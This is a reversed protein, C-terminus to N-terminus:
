KSDIMLIKGQLTKLEINLIGNRDVAAYKKNTLLDTVKNGIPNNLKLANLDLKEVITQDSFNLATIQYSSNKTLKHVMIIAGKNKVKPAAIQEALDIQYRKRIKLIHKLQSVFSNPDKLQKPISGYLFLAKPVNSISVSAKPNSGILDYAGRNIWRYDGDFILHKIKDLPLPLAGVLDWGSIIFVGPQMANFIVMLLHGCKIIEKQKDTLNYIDTIKLRAAVLGTFTTCLGNGSLRTYPIEPNIAINHMQEVIKDRLYKGNIIKNEYKFENDSHEIFHVLEYTIEDHNQMGHILSRPNINYEQMLKQMFRLFTADKTLIAHQLAPRTIFDYFLESGNESFSKIADLTLNLEQFSWGGLKRILCAINNTAITSCPHGESWAYSSNIVPEIALFPTADLRVIKNRLIHFNQVIDGSIIRQAAHSPDLWNMTPQGPKFYHLYIWRRVTGDVGSIEGTADWGTEKKSAGLVSFLVRQLRGPIYGCKQLKDIVDHDLNVSKWEDDVKPLLHWDKQDIEILDYIGPYDKYNRLALQFDAGKGTHGPIIDGAIIAKHRAATNVMNLYDTETGLAPDLNFAIRDFRGDVSPTYKKKAIGGALKMPSTHVANIGIEEFANWLKTDALSQLINQGSRTIMSDPYASFWVSATKIASETQPIAYPQQWQIKKGSIKQALFKAHYLMSQKELWAIYQKNNNKM